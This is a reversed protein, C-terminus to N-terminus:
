KKLKEMFENPITKVIENMAYGLTDSDHEIELNVVGDDDVIFLKMIDRAFEIMYEDDIVDFLQYIDIKPKEPLEYNVWNKIRPNDYVQFDDYKLKDCDYQIM